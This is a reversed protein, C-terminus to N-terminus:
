RCELISPIYSKTSSYAVCYFDVCMPLPGVKLWEYQDSEVAYDAYSGLMLFHVGAAEFSYYLNSSSGSAEYPNPWRANYAKFSPELLPVWEIDHNGEVNM